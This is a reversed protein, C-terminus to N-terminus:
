LRAKEWKKAGYLSVEVGKTDKLLRRLIKGSPSKPVQSIFVIGGQLWKYKITKDEILRKAEDALKDLGPTRATKGPGCQELLSKDAPVVYARPFESAQAADFISSVAADAINPSGCLINELESPAVQFGKVKIVEKLRDTIWLYGKSDIKGVDGTRFWGDPTLVEATAQPNNLYCNMLLNSKVLIEGEINRKLIEAPNNVSAIRIQVGHCEIGSNGLQPELEEWTDGTQNSTSGTESLGYGLKILIGLRRHVLEIIETPLPAGGSVGGQLSTVDFGDIMPSKALIVAVPPAMHLFTIKYDQIYSLMSTPNFQSMVFVTSGAAAALLLVNSLGFTHYFPPIGLWRQQDDYRPNIHWLTAVNYVLSAHSLVVGKSKGSTGSSWLIVAARRHFDADSIAFPAKLPQRALLTKWDHTGALAKGKAVAVGVDTLGYDQHSPDVIFVRDRNVKFSDSEALAKKLVSYGDPTTIVVKPESHKLVWALEPPTLAPNAMTATLGSAFIGFLIPAFALCNPLHILVIPSLIAATSSTDTPAAAPKLGLAHLGAALRFADQRTRQWSIQAGTVPDVLLPKQLPIKPITHARAEPSPADKITAADAHFPNSFLYEAINTAATRAPPAGICESTINHM